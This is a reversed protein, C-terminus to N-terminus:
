IRRLEPCPGSAASSCQSLPPFLLQPCAPPQYLSPQSAFAPSVLQPEPVGPVRWLALLVCPLGSM